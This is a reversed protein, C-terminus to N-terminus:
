LRTCRQGSRATSSTIGPGDWKTVLAADLGNQATVIDAQAATHVADKTAATARIVLDNNTLDLIGGNSVDLGGVVSTGTNGGNPNITANAAAGTITLSSQRIHNANLNAGVAVNTSGTGGINGVSRTPGLSWSRTSATTTSTPASTPQLSPRSRDPWSSHLAPTLPSRPQRRWRFLMKAYGAHLPSPRRRRRCSTGAGWVQAGELSITGPGTKTVQAGPQNDFLGTLATTTDAVQSLTLDKRLSSAALLRPWAPRRFAASGDRVAATKWLSRIPFRSPRISWFRQTTPVGASRYRVLASLVQTVPSCAHRRQHSRPRLQKRRRGAATSGKGFKTLTHATGVVDGNLDLRDAPRIVTVDLSDALNLRAGITHSGNEVNIKANGAGIDLALPIDAFIGTITYRHTSDFILTGATAGVNTGVTRPATIRSGFM